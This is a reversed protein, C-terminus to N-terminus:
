RAEQREDPWQELWQVLQGSRSTALAQEGIDRGGRARRCARCTPVTIDLEDSIVNHDAQQGCGICADGPGSDVARWDPIM